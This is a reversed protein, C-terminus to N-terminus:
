TLENQIIHYRLYDLQELQHEEEHITNLKKERMQNLMKLQKEKANKTNEKELILYDRAEDMSYDIQLLTMLLSLNKLDQDDYRKICSEEGSRNGLGMKEYETLVERPIRYQESVQEGTM